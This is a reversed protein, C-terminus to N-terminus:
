QHGIHAPLGKVWPPMATQDMAWLLFELSIHCSKIDCGRQLPYQLVCIGAPHHSGACWHCSNQAGIWYLSTTKGTYSIGSHLYSPRLITKDGCHSKRYQYSPMKINIWDGPSDMSHQQYKSGQHVVMNQLCKKMLLGIKIIENYEIIEKVFWHELRLYLRVTIACWKCCHTWLQSRFKNPYGIM